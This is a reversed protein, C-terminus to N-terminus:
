EEEERWGAIRLEEACAQSTTVCSLRTLSHRTLIQLHVSHCVLQLNQAHLATDNSQIWSQSKRPSFSMWAKMWGEWSTMRNGTRLYRATSKSSFSLHLIHDLCNEGPLVESSPSTRVSVSVKTSHTKKNRRPRLKTFHQLKKEEESPLDVLSGKPQQQQHHHSPTPPTGSSTDEVHVPVDELAKDLDFEMETTAVCACVCLTKAQDM